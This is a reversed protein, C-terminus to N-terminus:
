RSLHINDLAAPQKVRPSPPSELARAYWPEHVPEPTEAKKKKKQRSRGESRTAPSIRGAQDPRAGGRGVFGLCSLRGVAARGRRGVACRVSRRIRREPDIRVVLPVGRAGGVGARLLVTPGIGRHSTRQPILRAASSAHAEVVGRVPAARRRARGAVDQVGRRDAGTAGARDACARAPAAVAILTRRVAALDIQRRRAVV